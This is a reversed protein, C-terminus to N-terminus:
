NYKSLEILNGDPDRIYVSTMPGLAGHREVPGFEIAIQQEMLHSIVSEISSQVIFCFDGSGRTPVSARPCIQNHVSHLNIKQTGFRLAIRNCSYRTEEMGLVREYWKSTINVDVVTLVFHDICDIRM